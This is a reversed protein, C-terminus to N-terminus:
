LMYDGDEIKEDILEEVEEVASTDIETDEYRDINVMAHKQIEELESKTRKEDLYELIKEAWEDVYDQIVQKGDELFSYGQKKEMDIDNIGIWINAIEVMHNAKLEEIYNEISKDSVTVFQKLVRGGQVELAGQSYKDLDNHKLITILLPLIYKKSKPIDVDTDPVYDLGEYNEYLEEAVRNTGSDVSEYAKKQREYVYVYVCRSLYKGIKRQSYVQRAQNRFEELLDEQIKFNVKETEGRVHSFGELDTNVDNYQQKEFKYVDHTELAYRIADVIVHGAPSEKGYMEESYQQLM